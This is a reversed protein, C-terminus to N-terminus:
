FFQQFFAIISKQEHNPNDCFLSVCVHVGNQGRSRALFQNERFFVEVVLLGTRANGNCLAKPHQYTSPPTKSISSIDLQCYHEFHSLRNCTAYSEQLYFLYMQTEKAVQRQNLDDHQAQLDVFNNALSIHDSHPALDDNALGQTM